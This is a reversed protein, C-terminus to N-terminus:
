SLLITGREPTVYGQSTQRVSPLSPDGALVRVLEGVVGRSKAKGPRHRRKASRHYKDHHQRSKGDLEETESDRGRRGGHRVSDLFQRARSLDLFDEACENGAQYGFVV